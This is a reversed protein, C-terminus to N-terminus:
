QAPQTPEACVDDGHGRRLAIFSCDVRDAAPLLETDLTIAWPQVRKGFTTRRDKALLIPPFWSWQRRFEPHLASVPVHNSVRLQM